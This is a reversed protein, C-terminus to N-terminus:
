GFRDGFRDLARIHNDWALDAHREGSALVLDGEGTSIVFGAHDPAVGGADSRRRVARVTRSAVDFEVITGGRPSTAAVTRGDRSAAVSGVYQAMDRWVPGDAEVLTLGRHLDFAGVLPIEDGKPGEYQGGFWVSGDATEALHRISLQHQAAPLATKALLDGTVTDILAFSPEMTAINLNMRPFDPHTLIGGNAIALTRGDSLLLAEHPGIGHTPFEGIRRFGDTADYIGMVGREGDFDEETAFMLKGDASFAGHGAFLRTEPPAFAMTKRRAVLDLVVAFTGPRRAFVVVRRGTPDIAADHGREDLTATFLVRGDPDVVAAAYSGARTRCSAVFAPAGDALVMPVRAFATLAGAAGASALFARRTTTM